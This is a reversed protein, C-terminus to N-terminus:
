QVLCRAKITGYLYLGLLMVTIETNSSSSFMHVGESVVTHAQTDLLLWCGTSAFM